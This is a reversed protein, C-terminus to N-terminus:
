NGKEKIEQGDVLDAPPNAVLKTGERLVGDRPIEVGGAFEPGAALTLMRARGADVMFVVKTGNRVAVASGPVILKPPAELEEAELEKELFSVRASLDPIVGKTGDLFKIKVPVTGKSRNVRAGIEKVAGRIRKGSYADLVIECPSGEGVQSLRAEPIDIEVVLSSMDILEVIPNSGPGVLEGVEALKTVVTGAIPATVITNQLAVELSRTEADAAQADAEAARVAAGLSVIKAELDDVTAKPSVGRAALEKERALTQKVEALQARATQTRARAAAARARASAVASKQDSDDLRAIPDGEAVVKTTVVHLEAIRGTIKAAVKATREAVVYGTATLNVSAQAPSVLRVETTAVETKFMKAKLYPVGLFYAAAGLGGAIALYVIGKVAGGGRRPRADRDIKLSALDNSLQDNAV